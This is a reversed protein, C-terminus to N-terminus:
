EIAVSVNSYWPGGKFPPDGGSWYKTTLQTELEKFEIRYDEDPLVGDYKVYAMYAFLELLRTLPFFQLDTSATITAYQPYYMVKGTLGVSPIPQFKFVRNTYDPWVAYPPSGSTNVLTSQAFNYKRPTLIQPSMGQYPSDYTISDVRLLDTAMAVNETGSIITISAIVAAQDIDFISWLKDLYSGLTTYILSAVNSDLDGHLAMGTEVITQATLTM